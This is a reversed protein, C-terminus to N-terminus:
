SAWSLLCLCGCQGHTTPSFMVVAPTESCFYAVFATVLMALFMKVYVRKMVATVKLDLDQVSQPTFYEQYGNNNM